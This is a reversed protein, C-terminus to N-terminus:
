FEMEVVRELALVELEQEAFRAEVWRDDRPVGHRHGHM